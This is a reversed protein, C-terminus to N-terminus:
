VNKETNHEGFFQRSADELGEYWLEHWLVAVRILEHSVMEAQEIM